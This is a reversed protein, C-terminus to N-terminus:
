IYSSEAYDTGITPLIFSTCNNAVEHQYVKSRGLSATYYTSSQDESPANTLRACISLRSTRSGTIQVIDANPVTIHNNM